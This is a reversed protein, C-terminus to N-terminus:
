EKFQVTFNHISNFTDFVVVDDSDSRVPIVMNNRDFIIIDGRNVMSGAPMIDYGGEYRIKRFSIPQNDKDTLIFPSGQMILIKPYDNTLFSPKDIPVEVLGVLSVVYSKNQLFCYRRQISSPSYKIGSNNNATIICLNNRNFILKDGKYFTFFTNNNYSINEPEEKNCRQIRITFVNEQLSLDAIMKIDIDNFFVISIEQNTFNECDFYYSNNKKLLDVLLNDQFTITKSFFVSNDRGVSQINVDKHLYLIDDKNLEIDSTCDLVEYQNQINKYVYLANIGTVKLRTSNEAVIVSSSNQLIEKIVTNTFDITNNVTLLSDVSNVVCRTNNDKMFTYKNLSDNFIINKSSKFYPIKQFKEINVGKDIKILLKKHIFLRDGDNFTLSRNNNYCEEIQYATTNDDNFNRQTYVADTGDIFVTTEKDFIIFPFNNVVDDQIRLDNLQNRTVCLDYINDQINLFYLENYMMYHHSSKEINYSSKNDYFFELGIEKNFRIFNKKNLDAYSSVYILFYQSKDIGSSGGSKFRYIQNSQLNYRSYYSEFYGGYFEVFLPLECQTVFCSEDLSNFNKNKINLIISYDVIKKTTILFYKDVFKESYIINHLFFIFIFIINM